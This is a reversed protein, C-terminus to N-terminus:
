SAATPAIPAIGQRRPAASLTLIAANNGM